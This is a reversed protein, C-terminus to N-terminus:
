ADPPPSGPAGPRGSSRTPRAPAIVLEVEVLLRVDGSPTADPHNGLLRVSRLPGESGGRHEWALAHLVRYDLERTVDRGLVQWSATRVADLVAARRVERPRAGEWRRACGPVVVKRTRTPPPRRRPDPSETM